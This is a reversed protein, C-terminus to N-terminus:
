NLASGKALLARARPEDWPVAGAVRGVERGEADIFVTLPLGPAKLADYLKGKADHHFPLNDIHNVALWAKGQEPKMDLSVAVVAFHPGGLDRQLRSLAPMEEVCPLCWSAWLNLLVRRGKYAALTIEAGDPGTLSQRPLPRPAQHWVFRAYPDPAPAPAKEGRDHGANDHSAVIAYVALILALLLGLLGRFVTPKNIKISM